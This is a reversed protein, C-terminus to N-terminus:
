RNFPSASPRKPGAVLLASRAKSFRCRSDDCPPQEVGRRILAPSRPVAQAGPHRPRLAPRRASIRSSRWPRREQDLVVGDDTRDGDRGRCPRSASGRRRSGPRRAVDGSSTTSATRSRDGRASGNTPPIAKWWYRTTVASAARARGRGALEGVTARQVYSKALTPIGTLTIVLDHAHVGGRDQDAKSREEGARHLHDLRQRDHEADARHAAPARRQDAHARRRDHEGHEDGREPGASCCIGISSRRRSTPPSRSTKPSCHSRM